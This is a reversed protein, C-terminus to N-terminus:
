ETETGIEGGKRGCTLGNRWGCVSQLNVYSFHAFSLVSRRASGRTFSVVVVCIANQRVSHVGRARAPESSSGRSALASITLAPRTITNNRLQHCCGSRDLGSGESSTAAVVKCTAGPHTFGTSTVAPAQVARTSCSASRVPDATAGTCSGGAAGGIQRAVQNTSVVTRLRAPGGAILAQRASTAAAFFRCVGRVPWPISLTLVLVDIFTVESSTDVSSESDASCM